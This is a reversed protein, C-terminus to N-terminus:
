ITLIVIYLTYYIINPLMLKSLIVIDNEMKVLCIDSFTVFLSGGITCGDVQNLFRDSFKFTCETALKVLLKRFVLKSCIPM